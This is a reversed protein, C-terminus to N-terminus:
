FIHYALLIICVIVGILTLDLKDNSLAVAPNDEFTTSQAAGNPIWVSAALFFVIFKSLPM